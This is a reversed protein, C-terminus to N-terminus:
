NTGFIKYNPIMIGRKDIFKEAPIQSVDEWENEPVRYPTGRIGSFVYRRLTQLPVSVAGQDSNNLLSIALADRIKLQAFHLNCGIFGNWRMEIIYVLPHADYYPSKDRTIPDYTYFYMHGPAVGGTDIFDRNDTQLPELEEVLQTRWWDGSRRGTGAKNLITNLISM